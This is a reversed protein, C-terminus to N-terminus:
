KDNVTYNNTENGKGWNKKHLINFFSFHDLVICWRKFDVSVRLDRGIINESFYM